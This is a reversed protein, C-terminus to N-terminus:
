SASRTPAFVDSIIRLDTRSPDYTLGARRIRGTWTSCARFAADATYRSMAVKKVVRIVPDSVVMFRWSGSCDLLANSSNTLSSGNPAAATRM